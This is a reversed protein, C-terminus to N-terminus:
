YLEKLELVEVLVMNTNLEYLCSRVDSDCEVGNTWSM